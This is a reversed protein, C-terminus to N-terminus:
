STNEDCQYRKRKLNSVSSAQLGASHIAEIQAKLEQMEDTHEKHSKELEALSNSRERFSIYTERCFKLVDKLITNVEKNQRIYYPVDYDRDCQSLIFCLHDSNYSGNMKLEHKLLEEIM